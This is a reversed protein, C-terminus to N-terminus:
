LSAKAIQPHSKNESDTHRFLRKLLFIPFARLVYLLKPLFIIKVTNPWHPESASVGVCSTDNVYLVSSPLYEPIGIGSNQTLLLYDYLIPPGIPFAVSKEWGVQLGSVM